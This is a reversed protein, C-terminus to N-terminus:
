VGHGPGPSRPGVRRGCSIGACGIHTKFKDLGERVIEERKAGRTRLDELARLVELRDRAFRDFEELSIDGQPPELYM